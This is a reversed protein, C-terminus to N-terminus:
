IYKKMTCNKGAEIPFHTTQLTVSRSQQHHTQQIIITHQHAQIPAYGPALHLQPAEYGVCLYEQHWHDYPIDYHSDQSM